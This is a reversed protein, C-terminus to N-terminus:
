ESVILEKGPKLKDTKLGNVKKLTEISIRYKQGIKWLNEGRQVTHIKKKSLSGTSRKRLSDYGKPFPTETFFFLKHAAKQQILESHSTMVIKKLIQELTSNNELPLALFTILTQEDFRKLIYNEDWELLIKAALPSRLRIYETLFIKLRNNSLDQGAKQEQEFQKLNKWEGQMVLDVVQEKSLALGSRTFLAMVASFEPKLYFAELLSPNRPLASQQLELFLGESTFPFTETKIFRIIAAFQEETVGPYLVIEVQEARDKSRFRHIKKQIPFGQLAKEIDIFHFSVLSALALDRKKYGGEITEQSSLLNILEAFPLLSFESFLEENSIPKMTKKQDVSVPQLDFIIAEKKEGSIFYFLSTLLGINLAGSLILSQTLLRSKKAWQEQLFSSDHNDQLPPDM